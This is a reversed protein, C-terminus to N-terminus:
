LSSFDQGCRKTRKLWDYYIADTRTESRTGVVVEDDDVVEVEAIVKVEDLVEVEDEVIRRKNPRHLIIVEDDDVVEVEVIVKMKDLVEVEDEM